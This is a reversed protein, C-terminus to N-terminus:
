NSRKNSYNVCGSYSWCCPSKARNYSEQDSKEGSRRVGWKMGLVGFHVLETDAM